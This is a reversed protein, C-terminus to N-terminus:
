SVEQWRHHQHACDDCVQYTNGDHALANHLNKADYVDTGCMECTYVPDPNSAEGKAAAIAALADRGAQNIYFDVNRDGQLLLGKRVLARCSSLYDARGHFASSGMHNASNASLHKLVKIQTHTLNM